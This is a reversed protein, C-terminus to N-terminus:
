DKDTVTHDLNAAAVQVPAVVPRRDAAILAASSARLKQSFKCNAMYAIYLLGAIDTAPSLKGRYGTKQDFSVYDCITVINLDNETYRKWVERETKLELIKRIFDYISFVQPSDDLPANCRIEGMAIADEIQTVLSEIIRSHLSIGFNGLKESHNLISM